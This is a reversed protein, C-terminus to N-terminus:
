VFVLRRTYAAGAGVLVWWGTSLWAHSVAGRTGHLNYGCQQVPSVGSPPVTVM